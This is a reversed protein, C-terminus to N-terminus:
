VLVLAAAGVIGGHIGFASTFVPIRKYSREFWHENLYSEATKLFFEGGASLGGGIVVLDPSFTNAYTVLAAGLLRGFERFVGLADRDGQAARNYIKEPHLAESSDGKLSEMVGLREAIRIIGRISVITEV